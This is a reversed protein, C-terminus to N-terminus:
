SARGGGRTAERDTVGPSGTNGGPLVRTLQNEQLSNGCKTASGGYRPSTVSWAPPKRAIRRAGRRHQDFDKARCRTSRPTVWKVPLTMSNACPRCHLVRPTAAGSSRTAASTGRPSLFKLTPRDRRRTAGGDADGPRGVRQKLPQPDSSFDDPPSTGERAPFYEARIGEVPSPHSM